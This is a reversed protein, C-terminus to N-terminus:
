FEFSEAREKDGLRRFVIAAELLVSSDWLDAVRQERLKRFYLAAFRYHGARADRLALEQLADAAADTFPFRDAVAALKGADKEKRAEALLRSAEANAATRYAERGEPPLEALRRRAESRLSVLRKVERSGPGRETLPVLADDAAFLQLLLITT